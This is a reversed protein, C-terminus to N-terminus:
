TGAPPQRFSDTMGTRTAMLPKPRTPLHASREAISVSAGISHGDVGERIQRIRDLVLDSQQCGVQHAADDMVCVDFLLLQVRDELLHEAASMEDLRHEEVMAHDFAPCAVENADIRTIARTKCAHEM